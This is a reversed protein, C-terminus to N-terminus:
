DRRGLLREIARGWGEGRTPLFLHRCDMGKFEAGPILGCILRANAMPVIPDGAGAMVLTPQRLSHLWHISTWGAAAALQLYYGLRSQWRVHRFVEAALGPNKRFDGGYIDGAVRRAYDASM